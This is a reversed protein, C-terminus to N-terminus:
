PAAAAATTPKSSPSLNDRLGVVMLDGAYAKDASVKYSAVARLGDVHFCPTFHDRGVWLTDSFGVAFGQRHFILTKGESELTVTFSQDKCAVSKVIGESVLVDPPLPRDVLIQGSRKDAPISKWLEMAEDRDPGGWREAVYAARTAAEAPHGTRLLIQGTLVHYGSRIPELAEAKQAMQLAADPEGRRLDLKALEVYAPAYRPNLAVVKELTEKFAAQDAPADSRSVPSLMTTAFLPIYSKPDLEVARSFERLADEDKGENLQVFGMDEHALAVKPDGKLAADALERVMDFQHFLIHFAGLEAKTEALSLARGSYDKEDVSAVYPVVGTPYAIRNIYTRYAKDMEEINGFVEEFAKLQNTGRQLLNFFKKLKDGQDMGPGFTLFHTLAWAEAYFLQTNQEDRSMSSRTTIFTRLPTPTRSDLIETRHSKSPAGIYMKDGEFRTYAYFEALGEDLWTPLWRFNAHLLTHVYEHYVVSFTDPNRRESNVADLRVVAYNREWGKIFQGAIQAGVGAKFMQPELMKFTEEDRPALVLFQATGDLAFGPFQSAFVARMEEFARAVHRADHDGGNTIVRFHPSRIELWPKDQAVLWGSWSLIFAAMWALSQRSPFM